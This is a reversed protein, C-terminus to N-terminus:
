EEIDQVQLIKRAMVYLMERDAEQPLHVPEGSVQTSHTYALRWGLAEIDLQADDSQSSRYFRSPRHITPPLSMLQIDLHPRLVITDNIAPMQIRMAQKNVRPYMCHM